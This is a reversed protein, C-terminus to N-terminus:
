TFWKAALLFKLALMTPDPKQKTWSNFCIEEDDRLSYQYCSSVQESYDYGGCIVVKGSTVDFYGSSAIILRPFKSPNRFIPSPFSQGSTM